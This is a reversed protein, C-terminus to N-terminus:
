KAGGKLAIDMFRSPNAMVRAVYAPSLDKYTQGENIEKRGILFANVEAENDGVIVMMPHVLYFDPISDEDVTAPATAAPKEVPKEVTKEPQPKAAPAAPAEVDWPAQVAIFIKKIVAITDEPTPCEFEGHLAPDKARNKADYAATTSTCLLRMEGGLAKNKGQDVERVRLKYRMFLLHDAWHKVIPAVHKKNMDLEYRDFSAQQDPLDIKATMSHATLVVHKGSELVKTFLSLISMMEDGIYSGERDYARDKASYQAVVKEKIKAELWDVTDVIVTQFSRDKIILPIASQFEALTNVEYRDVALRRTGRETDLFIPDPFLAAVSTKGIGQPGYIVVKQPESIIGKIINM